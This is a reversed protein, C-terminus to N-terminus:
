GAVHVPAAPEDSLPPTVDGQGRRKEARRRRRALLLMLLGLGALLGALSLQWPFVLVSTTAVVEGGQGDDATVEVTCGLCLIPPDRWVGEVLRTGDGLVTFNEFAFDGEGTTATLRGEEQFTRHINGRNHVALEFEAPGRDIVAPGSLEGLELQEIQDGPVEIYLKAAVRHTLSINGEGDASPVALIVSVYREGPEADEPVDVTVDLDHREDPELAFETEELTVWDAASLEDPGAFETTGHETVTFETVEAVVEVPESGTNDVRLPEVTGGPAHDVEMVAPSVRLSMAPRDEVDEPETDASAPTPIAFLVLVLGLVLASTRRQTGLSTHTTTM